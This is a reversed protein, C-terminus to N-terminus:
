DIFYDEGSYVTLKWSSTTLPSTVFNQLNTIMIEIYSNKILDEKIVGEIKLENM